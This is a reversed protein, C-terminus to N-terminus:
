EGQNEVDVIISPLKEVIILALEEPSQDAVPIHLDAEAYLPKRIQLIEDLDQLSFNKNLLPRKILDLKIRALLREKEPDIWIVVGQHLIGWNQPCTVVGGGTSVVLSYRQGIEKMVKTEIERFTSEGDEEFIESISKKAVKEVVNDADVFGYEIKKALLPGTVSKGSGMMGILYLNRGGLIQKLLVSNM